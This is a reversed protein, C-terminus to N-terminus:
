LRITSLYTGDTAPTFKLEQQVEGHTVQSNGRMRHHLDTLNYILKERGMRVRKGDKMVEGVLHAVEPSRVVAIASSPFRDESVEFRMEGRWSVVGCYSNQFSDSIKMRVLMDRCNSRPITVQNSKSSRSIGFSDKSSISIMERRM